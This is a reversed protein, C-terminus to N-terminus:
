PGTQSHDKTSQAWPQKPATPMTPKKHESLCLLATEPLVRPLVTQTQAESFGFADFPTTMTPGVSATIKRTPGNQTTRSASNPDIHTGTAAKRAILTLGHPVASWGDINQPHLGSSAGQWRWARM